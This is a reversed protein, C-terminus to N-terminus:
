YRRLRLRPSARRLPPSLRWPTRLYSGAARASPSARRASWAQALEVRQLLTPHDDLLVHVWGPPSPDQLGTAQFNTFLHRAAAPDRTGNLGIWDAEREYRRSIDNQLPLLALRCLAIVLLAAPVAGPRRLDVAYATVLLVPLVLLAFWGVGRVIHNRALHGLEHGVVFRVQDAAFRGDLLTSWLVIRETPGIGVAFANAATTRASVDDVRVPPTGAHERRELTGIAARLQPSRVAHTNLTAAYPALLQLVLLVAAIAPGAALWWRRGLRRALALVIALVVVVIATTGLLRAGAGQVAQVYSERSIGYRREWWTAAIACPLTAAWVVTFTLVGLVIGANVDGLGLRPALARGRPVMAAYAALAVVTAVVWDWDLFREYHEARHVIGPVFLATERLRPLHLNSPV